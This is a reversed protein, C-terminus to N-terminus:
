RGAYRLSCSQATSVVADVTLTGQSLAQRLTQAADIVDLAYRQPDDTPYAALHYNQATIATAMFGDGAMGSNRASAALFSFVTACITDKDMAGVSAQAPVFMVASAILVAALGPRHM